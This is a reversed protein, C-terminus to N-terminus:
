HQSKKKSRSSIHRYKAKKYKSYMKHTVKPFLAYLDPRLNDEKEKEEMERLYDIFILTSQMRTSIMEHYNEFFVKEFKENPLSCSLKVEDLYRDNYILEDIHFKGSPTIFVKASSHKKYDFQDLSSCISPQITLLNKILLNYLTNGIIEDEERFTEKFFDLIHDISVGSGKQSLYQLIRLRLFCNTNSNTLNEFLNLIPADSPEKYYPSNGLILALYIKSITIDIEDFVKQSSRRSSFPAFSHYSSFILKLLRILERLNYNSLRSLINVVSQTHAPDTLFDLIKIGADLTDKRSVERVEGEYVLTYKQEQKSLEITWLDKLVKLRSAILDRISPMSLNLYEKNYSELANSVALHEFSTDRLAFIVPCKLESALSFSDIFAREQYYRLHQDLNDIVLIIYHGFEDRLFKFRKAHLKEIDEKIRCILEIQKNSCEKDYDPPFNNELLEKKFVKCLCEFYKQSGSKEVDFFEYNVELLENVRELLKTRFLKADTPFGKRVDVIFFKIDDTKLISPFQIKATYHLFTSKGRGVPSLIIIIPKGTDTEILKKIEQKFEIDTSLRDEVRLIEIPPINLLVSPVFTEDYKRPRVKCYFRELDEKSEIIEDLVLRIAHAQVDWLISPSKRYADAFESQSFTKM